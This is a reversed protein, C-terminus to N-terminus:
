KKKAIAKKLLFEFYKQVHPVVEEIIKEMEESTSRFRYNPDELVKGGSGIEFTVRSEGIGM